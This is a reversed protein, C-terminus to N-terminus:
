WLPAPGVQQHAENFSLRAPGGLSLRQRTRRVQGIATPAFMQTLLEAKVPHPGDFPFSGTAMAVADRFGGLM